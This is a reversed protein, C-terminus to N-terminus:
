YNLCFTRWLLDSATRSERCTRSWLCTLLRRSRTWVREGIVEGSGATCVWLCLRLGLGAVGLMTLKEEELDSVISPTVCFVFSAPNSNLALGTKNM